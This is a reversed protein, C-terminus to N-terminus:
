EIDIKVLSGLYVELLHLKTNRFELINNTRMTETNNGQKLVQTVYYVNMESDVLANLKVCMCM